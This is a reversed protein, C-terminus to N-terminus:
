DPCYGQTLSKNYTPAVRLKSRGSLSHWMMGCICKVMPICTGESKPSPPRRAGLPNCLAQICSHQFQFSGTIIGFNTAKFGQM